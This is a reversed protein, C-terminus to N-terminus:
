YVEIYLNHWAILEAKEEGAMLLGGTTATTTTSEQIHLRGFCRRALTENFL